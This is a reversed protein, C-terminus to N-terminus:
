DKIFPMIPLLEKMSIEIAGLDEIQLKLELDFSVELGMLEKLKGECEKEKGPKIKVSQQIEDTFVYNGKSDKQAYEGMIKTFEIQYFELEKEVLTALKSLEHATKIPLKFTKIQQFFQSMDIIQFMKLKM